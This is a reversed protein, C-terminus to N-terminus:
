AAGVHHNAPVQFMIKSSKPIQITNHHLCENCDKLYFILSVDFSVGSLTEDFVKLM